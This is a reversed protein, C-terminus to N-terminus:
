FIVVEVRNVNAALLFDIFERESLVRRGNVSVIRDGERFGLKAIAGRTAVDSIVLGDRSGRNFWLGIDPGRMDTPKLATRERATGQDQRATRNQINRQDSPISRESVGTRDQQQLNSPAPQSKREPQAPVVRQSAAGRDSQAQKSQTAQGQIANKNQNSITNSSTQANASLAFPLIMLVVTMARSMFHNM